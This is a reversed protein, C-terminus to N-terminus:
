GHENIDYFPLFDGLAGSGRLVSQAPADNRRIVPDGPKAVVEESGDANRLVMEMAADNSYERRFFVEGNDSFALRTAGESVVPLLTTLSIIFGIARSKQTLNSFNGNIM